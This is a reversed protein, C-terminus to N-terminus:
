RRAGLLAQLVSAVVAAESDLPAGPALLIEGRRLRHAVLEVVAAAAVADAHRTAERVGEDLALSAALLEDEAPPLELASPAYEGGPARM